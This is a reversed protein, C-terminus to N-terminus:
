EKLRQALSDVVGQVIETVTLAARKALANVGDLLQEARVDVDNLRNNAPKGHVDWSWVKRAIKEIEVDTLPMDEEEGLSWTRGDDYLAPDDSVSLHLHQTHKNSGTYPRVAWAPYGRAPYSSFTQGEYIVYKIRPDRSARLKDWLWAGVQSTSATDNEDFDQAQVVGAQNPNHDSPRSAHASDGIWGDSSTDRLPFLTNVQKLLTQLSKARRAM